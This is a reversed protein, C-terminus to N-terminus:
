PTNKELRSNLVERNWLIKGSHRDLAILRRSQSEINCTAIFVHNEWIVPSAHGTGPLPTKWLINKGTTGDWELPLSQSISSGDGRPGRWGPWNEASLQLSVTILLIISLLPHVPRMNTM